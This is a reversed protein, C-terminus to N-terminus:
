AASKPWSQIYEESCTQLLWGIERTCVRLVASAEALRLHTLGFVHAHATVAIGDRHRVGAVVADAEVGDLSLLQGDDAHSALAVALEVQREGHEDRGGVQKHDTFAVIRSKLNPVARHM